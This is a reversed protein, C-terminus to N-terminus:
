SPVEFPKFVRDLDEQKVYRDQRVDGPIVEAPLQGSAILRQVKQRSLRMRQAIRAQTLESEYYLRAVKM